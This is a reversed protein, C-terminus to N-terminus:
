THKGADRSEMRKEGAIVRLSAGLHTRIWHANFAHEGRTSVDGQTNPTQVQQTGWFWQCSLSAARLPTKTVKLRDCSNQAQNGQCPFSNQKRFRIHM